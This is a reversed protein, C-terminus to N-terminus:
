GGIFMQQHSASITLSPIQLLSLMGIDNFAFSTSVTIVPIQSFGRYNGATNSICTVSVTVDGANTWNTLLYAGNNDLTGKQALVKANGELTNWNANGSSVPCSGDNVVRALYRAANKVGKDAVHKQQLARGFEVLGGFLIFLVPLLLSM